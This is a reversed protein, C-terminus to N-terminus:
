IEDLKSEPLSIGNGFCNKQNKQLQLLFGLTAKRYTIHALTIFSKVDTIQYNDYYALTNTLSHQLLKGPGVSYSVIFIRLDRVLFLKIVNAWIVVPIWNVLLSSHKDSAFWSSLGIFHVMESSWFPKGPVFM